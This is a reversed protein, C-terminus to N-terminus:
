PQDAFASENPDAIRFEENCSKCRFIRGGQWSREPDSSAADHQPTVEEMTEWKGNGHSHQMLYSNVFAQSQFSM